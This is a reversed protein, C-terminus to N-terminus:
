LILGAEVRRNAGDTPAVDDLPKEYGFGYTQLMTPDVGQSVLYDAVAKARRESLKRNYAASGSRDTHGGILFTKGAMKPDKLAEALAVAQARSEATLNASNIDFNMRIDFMRGTQPADATTGQAMAPKAKPTTIGAPKTAGVSAAPRRIPTVNAPAPTNTPAPRSTLSTFGRTKGQRVRPPLNEDAAADTAAGDGEAAAAEEGLLGNVYDDKTLPKTDAWAATSLMLGAMGAIILKKTM